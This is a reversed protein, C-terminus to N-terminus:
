GIGCLRLMLIFIIVLIIASILLLSKDIKRKTSVIIPEKNEDKAPAEIQYTLKSSLAKKYVSPQMVVSYGSQSVIKDIEDNDIRVLRVEESSVSFSVPPLEQFYNNLGNIQEKLKKTIRDTEQTSDNLDKDCAVVKGNVWDILEGSIFLDTVSVELISYLKKLNSILYGNLLLGLGFYRDSSELQKTFSYFILKGERHVIMQSNMKSTELMTRFIDDAESSPYQQYGENMNGFIYLSYNM